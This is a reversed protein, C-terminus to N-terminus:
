NNKLYMDVFKDANDRRFLTSTQIANESMEQWKQPDNSLAVIFDKAKELERETYCKAYGYKNTYSHLESDEGAIYLSPIGYSMLNYSKSPVSGQSVKEDLIVVGMDAASLSYPVM